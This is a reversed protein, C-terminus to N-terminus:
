VDAGRDKLLKDPSPQSEDVDFVDVFACKLIM